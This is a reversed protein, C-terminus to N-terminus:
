SSRDSRDAGTDGQVAVVGCSVGKRAAPDNEMLAQAADSSEARLIVAGRETLDELYGSHSPVAIGEDATPRM